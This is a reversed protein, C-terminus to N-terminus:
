LSYRNKFWISIRNGLTRKLAKIDLGSEIITKEEEKLIDKSVWKIFESTSKLHLPYNQEQLFEIGQQFRRETLVQNCFEDLSSALEIDVEVKQKVNFCKEM